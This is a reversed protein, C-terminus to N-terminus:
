RMRRCAKKIKRQGLAQPTGSFSTPANGGTFCIFPTASPDFTPTFRAPNFNFDPSPAAAPFPAAAGFNFGGSSTAPATSGFNFGTNAPTSAFSSSPQEQTRSQPTGFIPPAVTSQGFAPTEPKPANFTFGSTNSSGPSNFTGGFVNNSPPTNTTSGFTFLPKQTTGAPNTNASFKFGSAPQAVPQAPTANFTFRSPSPTNTEDPKATSGFINPKTETAFTSPANSGFVPTVSSGFLSPTASPANFTPTASPASFTPTASPASFTPTVTPASFTPTTTATPAQATASFLPTPKNDPSGFVPIKTDSSGFISSKNEVTGFTPAKADPMAFTFPKSVNAGFTPQKNEETGFAPTTKADSTGFLSPTNSINSFISNGSPGNPMAGFTKTASIGEKAKEGFTFTTSPTSSLASATIQGFTALPKTQAPTTESFVFSSQTSSPLSTVVSTSVSTSVAVTNSPIGFTFIPTSKLEQSSSQTVSTLTNVNTATSSETVKTNPKSAEIMPNELLSGQQKGKDMGPQKIESKPVGFTFTSPLTTSQITSAVITSQKDNEATANEPKRIGFSFSSAAKKELKESDQKLDTQEVPKSGVQLGFGSGVISSTSSTSELTESSTKKEEKQIGFTFQGIQSSQQSEGFKFSTIPTVTDTKEQDAKDIGFKFGGASPPMGFSFQLNSSTNTTSNDSKKSGPKLGGCAVCETVKAENQLMCSDCTWAGEPKKFKDGFGNAVSSPASKTANGTSGTNPKATNCCPCSDISIVNRVMCCPCEWTDKNPKFKDIAESKTVTSDTLSTNISMNTKQNTAINTDDTINKEKKPYTNLLNPKSTKCSSCTTTDASNKSPCNSCDWSGELSKTNLDSNPLKTAASQTEPKSPPKLASCAVCKIDTQKNRIFCSACEWQNSSIKFQSGFYDKVAAKSESVTSPTSLLESTKNNKPSRKATKCSICQTESSNNKILCESCEWMNSTDQQVDTKSSSIKTINNKNTDLTISNVKNNSSDENSDLETKTENLKELETINTKSGLIDMVSGSKLEKSTAPVPSDRNKAKEKLRPATSSTSWMFNQTVTSVYNSSSATSATGVRKLPSSSKISNDISQKDAIIPSSFTFNNISKLNKAVNTVKIPSAFTFTEEKDICSKDVTTSNVPPMFNFNPLSSIPLPISPLNVPEITCEEDLNTAKVKLKGHHKSDEDDQTRLHYEQPPPQETRASVIKRAAVTTDQLKQRRKLKLIDPVSPVILERTLHRLGVKVTPSTEERTRKKSLSSTNNIMKLPIKKADTIPSSFHELAELIKKATQSMGSSDVGTTNSPKVEVSTRRSVKLPIENSNNFLTRSRKYHGAANAGGFTTNGSYFPSSLPSARDPTNTMVSANFSPRRSSLSDRNDLFLSRLSQTHNNFNLKDNNFRKRNSFTSNYSANSPAEQRNIQPILSSCGSTSESSESNDDTGNTTGNNTAATMSNLESRQPVINRIDTQMAPTSSILPSMRSPGAMAPESFDESTENHISYQQKPSSAKNLPTKATTQILFTGPPYTIDMRIRPRKLPPPKQIEEESEVEEPNESDDLVDGENHSSNFWKTIWSRQPILDTVKTAVKKVFSNNADYPKTNRSSSRRGSLNNSGKAM